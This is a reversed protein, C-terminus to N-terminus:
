KVARFLSESTFYGKSPFVPLNLSVFIRLINKIKRFDSGPIRIFMIRILFFLTVRFKPFDSNNSILTMIPLIFQGYFDSPPIPCTPGESSNPM